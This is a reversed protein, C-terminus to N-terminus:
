EEEQKLYPTPDIFPALKSGNGSIIKLDKRLGLCPRVNKKANVKSHLLDEM